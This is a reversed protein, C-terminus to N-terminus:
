LQMFPWRLMLWTKSRLEMMLIQVQLIIKSEPEHDGVQFGAQCRMRIKNTNWINWMRLNDVPVHVAVMMAQGQANVLALKNEALSNQQLTNHATFEWILGLKWDASEAQEQLKKNEGANDLCVYRVGLGNQKWCHLKECTTEVTEGNTNVGQERM